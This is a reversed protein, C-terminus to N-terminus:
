RLHGDIITHLLRFVGASFENYISSDITENYDNAYDSGSPQYFFGFAKANKSGILLGLWGYYAIYQFQAINIRRAEQFLTEDSWRPNLKQLEKAIRNHERIFLIHVVSLDPNQNLRSDGSQYCPDRINQVFCVNNANPEQLPWTSNFRTEVALQGNKFSRLKKLNEQSVGYIQSLDISATAGNIQESPYGKPYNPCSMDNDTLSRTFDMCTMGSHINDTRPVPIHLCSKEPKSVLLGNKKCCGQQTPASLVNSLDHAIFQVFQMFAQTFRANPINNDGFATLSILRASPLDGGKVSKPPSSIDDSYRSIM